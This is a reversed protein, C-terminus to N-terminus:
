RRLAKEDAPPWGYIELTSKGAALEKMIQDEKAERKQSAELTSHIEESPIVVVGDRDGVVLDGPHVTVDGIVIPSNIHGGGKKDTGRISLGRSFVPFGLKEILDADRVCGDIVLGAIKRQQAAVTMIEGWYGAEYGRNVDVVLVTGPQAVYLAQHLMLNDIPPSSVTVAPGCIKMTPNIPKISHPLAGKRGTAEHLTASGYRSVRQLTELNIETM